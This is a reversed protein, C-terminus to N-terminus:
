KSYMMISEAITATYVSDSKIQGEGGKVLFIFILYPFIGKKKGKAEVAGALKIKASDQAIYEGLPELDTFEIKIKGAKGGRGAREVEAVTASGMAGKEVITVDGVDIPEALHISVPVGKVLKSSSIQMTSDFKVKIELSDPLLIRGAQVDVSAMLLLLMASAALFNIRYKFIEAMNREGNM